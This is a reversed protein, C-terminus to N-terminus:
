STRGFEEVVLWRGDPCREAWTGIRNYRPDKIINFHDPSKLWAQNIVGFDSGTGIIEGVETFSAPLGAFLDRSHVMNCTPALQKALNMAKTDLDGHESVSGVGLYARDYNAITMLQQQDPTCATMTMVLCGLALAGTIATAIRRIPRHRM